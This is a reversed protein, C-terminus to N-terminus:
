VETLGDLEQQTLFRYEGPKLTEDLVLNKMRIRKLYTVKSGLALMMRKIEHYRGETITLTMAHESIKKYKAPRYTEGHWSIGESIKKVDEENLPIDVEAYYEKEILKKPSLLEHALQGDNTILLLGETDKDLRGVPFLNRFPEEILDIVNPDWGQSASIYGQPKNLMIYVFGTYYVEEDDFTVVDNDEDVKTDAHKVTEGNIKVHGDRVAKKVQSRTGVGAEALFKDLRIM